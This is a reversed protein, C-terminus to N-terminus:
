KYVCRSVCGRVLICLVSRYTTANVESFMTSTMKKKWAELQIM